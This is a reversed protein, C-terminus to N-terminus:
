LRWWSQARRRHRVILAREQACACLVTTRGCRPFIRWSRTLQAQVAGTHLIARNTRQSAGSVSFVCVGCRLWSQPPKDAAVGNRGPPPTRTKKKEKIARSLKKEREERLAGNLGLKVISRRTGGGEAGSFGVPHGNRRRSPRILIPLPLITSILRSGTFPTSGASSRYSAISLHPDIAAARQATPRGGRQHSMGRQVPCLPLHM